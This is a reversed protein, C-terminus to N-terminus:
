NINFFPCINENNIIIFINKALSVGLISWFFDVSQLFGLLFARVCSLVFACLCNRREKKNRCVCSFVVVVFVFLLYIYLYNQTHLITICLFGRVQCLRPPLLRLVRSRPKWGMLAAKNEQNKTHFIRILASSRRLGLFSWFCGQFAKIQGKEAELSRICVLAM